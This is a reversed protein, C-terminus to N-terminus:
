RPDLHLSQTGLTKAQEEQNLVRFTGDALAQLEDEGPYVVIPAIWDVYASLRKVLEESHAMGGTLLVCDVEGQLVSTMAGAEKAIQYVMAEFVQAAYEDGAAILREVEKLDRTGLYAFIGGGGFVQRVLQARTYSGDYCLNVLAKVPLSGSRDPGFPGEEISNNDIM